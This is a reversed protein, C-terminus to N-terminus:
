VHTYHFIFEFIRHYSWKVTCKVCERLGIKALYIGPKKHISRKLPISWKYPEYICIIGFACFKRCTHPEKFRVGFVVSSSSLDSLKKEFRENVFLLLVM